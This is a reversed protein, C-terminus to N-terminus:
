RKKKLFSYLPLTLSRITLSTGPQVLDLFRIEKGRIINKHDATFGVFLAIERVRYDVECVIWLPDDKTLNKCDESGYPMGAGFSDLRSRVVILQDSDCIVTDYVPRKNVSHTYSLVFEEGEEVRHCVLSKNGKRTEVTLVRYRPVLFLFMVSPCVVAFLWLVKKNQLGPM